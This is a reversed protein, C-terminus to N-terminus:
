GLPGAGVPLRDSNSQCVTIVFLGLAQGALRLLLTDDSPVPAWFLRLGPWECGRYWAVPASAPTSGPARAVPAPPRRRGRPPPRRRPGSRCSRRASAPASGGQLPSAVRAM